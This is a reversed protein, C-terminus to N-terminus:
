KEDDYWDNINDRKQDGAWAMLAVIPLGVFIIIAEIWNM